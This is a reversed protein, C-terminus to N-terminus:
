GPVGLLSDERFALPDIFGDDIRRLHRGGRLRKTTKM